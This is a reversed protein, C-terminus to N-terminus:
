GTIECCIGCIPHLGYMCRVIPSGTGSTLITVAPRVLGIKRGIRGSRQVRAVGTRPIVPAEGEKNGYGSWDHNRESRPLRRVM